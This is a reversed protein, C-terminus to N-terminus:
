DQKDGTYSLFNLYDQQLRKQKFLEEPAVDRKPKRSKQRGGLLLFSTVGLNAACVVFLIWIMGM